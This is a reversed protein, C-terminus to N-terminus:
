IQSLLKKVTEIDVEIYEAMKEISCGDKQM